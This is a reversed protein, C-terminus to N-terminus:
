KRGTSATVSPLAVGVPVALGEAEPEGFGLADGLLLSVAEPDLAVGEALAVVWPRATVPASVFSVDGLGLAEPVGFADALGDAETSGAVASSCFFNASSSQEM